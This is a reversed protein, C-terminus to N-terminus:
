GSDEADGIFGAPHGPEHREPRNVRETSSSRLGPATAPTRLAGSQLQLVDPRRDLAPSPAPCSLPLLLSLGGLSSSSPM